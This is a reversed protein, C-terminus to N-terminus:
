FRTVQKPGVDVAYALAAFNKKILEFRLDRHGSDDWLNDFEGPDERLEFLEGADRDHYVALKYRQDRIMTAYTGDLDRGEFDPNLVRYVPIAITSRIATGALCPCTPVCTRIAWHGAPTTASNTQAFGSSIPDKPRWKRRM